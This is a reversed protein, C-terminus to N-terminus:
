KIGNENIYKILWDPKNSMIIDTNLSLAKAAQRKLNCSYTLVLKGSSRILDVAAKELRRIPLSIGCLFGPACKIKKYFRRSRGINMVYKLGPATEHASRLVNIDFSLIYINGLFRGEVEESILELIKHTLVIGRGSRRDYRRSKIEIMMATRGSYLQLAKKLTMLREGRYEPSFWGGWDMKKLEAYSQEHIHKRRGAVKQLTMDHYLVPVGDSTMQVDMELGYVSYKLAAEFAPRTNEPASSM